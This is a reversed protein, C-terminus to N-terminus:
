NLFRMCSKEFLPAKADPVFKVPIQSTFYHERVHEKLLWEGNEYHLEGNEVNICDRNLNFKHGPNYTM